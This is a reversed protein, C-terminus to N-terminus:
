EGQSIRRNQNKVAQSASALELNEEKDHVAAEGKIHAMNVWQAGHWSILFGITLPFSLSSQQYYMSNPSCHWRSIAQPATQSGARFDSPGQIHTCPDHWIACWAEYHGWTVRNPRVWDEGIQGDLLARVGERQGRHSVCINTCTAGKYTELGPWIPLSRLLESSASPIKITASM